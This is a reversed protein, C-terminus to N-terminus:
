TAHRKGGAGKQRCGECKQLTRRRLKCARHGTMIQVGKSRIGKAEVEDDRPTDTFGAKTAWGWGGKGRGRKGV